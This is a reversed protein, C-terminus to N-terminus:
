YLGMFLINLEEIIKKNIPIINDRYQQIMKQSTASIGSNGKTTKTYNETTDKNENSSSNITENANTTSENAITSSAYKGELIQNKNIQGQPTDSNVQLGNGNASSTSTSNGINKSTDNITRKYEETFDVNILPNYTISSSYILPIYTEMIEYMTIKAYHKFLAITEFGIERMYYHDVIKKALIDKNWINTSTIVEIQESTLFDTLNYDKFWNEVEERKMIDCVKRLEMTYKSM